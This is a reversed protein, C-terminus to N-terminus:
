PRPHGYDVMCNMFRAYRQNTASYENPYNSKVDKVCAAWAQEYTLKNQAVADPAGALALTAVFSAAM